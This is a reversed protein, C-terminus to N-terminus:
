DGYKECIEELRIFAPWTELGRPKKRLNDSNKIAKLCKSLKGHRFFQVSDGTIANILLLAEEPFLDCLDSESFDNYIEEPQHVPMLLCGLQKYADAFADEAELCINVIQEATRPTVKSKYQPWVSAFYHSVRNRWYKERSKANKMEEVITELAHCLGDEPLNATASKYQMRSFPKVRPLLALSTLIQAYRPAAGGLDDYHSATELFQEKVYAIFPSKTYVVGCWRLFGRWAACAEETSIQWNFLPLLVQTAWEEDVRLFRQSDAAFIARAPRCQPKQTDCLLDLLQRVEGNLEPKGKKFLWCSLSEAIREAISDDDSAVERSTIEIKIIRRILLMFLGVGEDPVRDAQHLLWFALSHAMKRVTNDDAKNLIPAAMWSNEILEGTSWAALAGEWRKTPWYDQSALIGFAGIVARLNKQCHDNWIEHDSHWNDRIQPKKLWVALEPATDPPMVYQPPLIDGSYVKPAKDAFFDGTEYAAVAGEYKNGLMNLKAEGAKGLPIGSKRAWVLRQLTARELKEQPAFLKQMERPPGKLIANLIDRAGEPPLTKGLKTILPFSESRMEYSWLWWGNDRLLWDLALEGPVIEDHTAAWFALRKFVPYPMRQWDEAVRRAIDPNKTKRWANRAFKILIAWDGHIRNGAIQPIYIQSNGYKDTAKGLENMIDLADRLLVTFDDLLLPLTKKWCPNHEWQSIAASPNSMRLAVTSTFFDDPNRSKKPPTVTEDYRLLREIEVRPALIDRLQRRLTASLGECYLRDSWEYAAMNNKDASIARGSLLLRWLARMKDNPVADASASKVEDLYRKNERKQARDIERLQHVLTAAFSDHLRGGQEAAWLILEPNNLHRSLWGAMPNMIGDLAGDRRDTYVLAMNPFSQGPYEPRNIASFSEGNNAVVPAHNAFRLLDAKKMRKESFVNLWRLSPAPNLEAFYKAVRPTSIAWLMQEAVFRKGNKKPPSKVHRDIIIEKGRRHINAWERLTKHLLAHNSRGDYFIPEVGKTSWEEGRSKEEGRPCEAFAYMKYVGSNGSADAARAATLYRVAPDNVGYGVFCVTYNKLLGNIFRTAWQHTMYARGFDADSVVLHDFKNDDYGDQPPPLLGHLYVIGTWGKPDVPLSPADHRTIKEGITSEFLRDFNTTVLRAKGVAAPHRALDWLASHTESHVNPRTELIDALKKMVRPRGGAVDRELKGVAFDFYGTNCLEKATGELPIGVGKHLKKVLEGFGPLGKPRSIGAGCFFVVEGREHAHLLHPPIDPGNRIIQTM